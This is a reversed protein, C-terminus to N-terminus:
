PERRPMISGDDILLTFASKEGVFNEVFRVSQTGLYEFLPRKRGELATEKAREVAQKDNDAYITRFVHPNVEYFYRKM